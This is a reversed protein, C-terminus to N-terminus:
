SSINLRLSIRIAVLAHVDAVFILRYQHYTQKRMMLIDNRNM